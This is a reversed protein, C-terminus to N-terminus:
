LLHYGQSQYHCWPGGCDSTPGRRDDVLLPLIPVTEPCYVSLSVLYLCVWQLDGIYLADHGMSSLDQGQAMGQGHVMGQGQVTGMGAGNGNYNGNLNNLNPAHQNAPNTRPPPSQEDKVDEEVRPRKQGVGPENISTV